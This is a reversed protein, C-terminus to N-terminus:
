RTTSKGAVKKSKRHQKKISEDSPMGDLGPLGFREGLTTVAEMDIEGAINVFLVESGGTIGMVVLGDIEERPSVHAFALFEEQADRVRAFREWGDDVLRRGLKDVTDRARTATKTGDDGNPIEAIVAQLSELGDLIDALNKDHRRVARHGLLRLLRGHLTVEILKGDRDAFEVFRSGDVYGPHRTHPAAGAAYAGSSAVLLLILGAAIPTLRNM